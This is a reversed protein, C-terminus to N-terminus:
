RAGTYAGCWLADPLVHGRRVDAAPDFRRAAVADQKRAAADLGLLVTGSRLRAHSPAGDHALRLRAALNPLTIDYRARAATHAGGVLIRPQLAVRDRLLAQRRM